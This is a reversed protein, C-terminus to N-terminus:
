FIILFEIFKFDGFKEAGLLKTHLVSILFGLLIGAASSGYMVVMKSRSNKIM